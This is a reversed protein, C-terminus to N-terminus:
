ALITPLLCSLQILEISTSEKHHNIILIQWWSLIPVTLSFMTHCIKSFLTNVNHVHFQSFSNDVLIYTSSISYEQYGDSKCKIEGLFVGSTYLYM